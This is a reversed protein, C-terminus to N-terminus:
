TLHINIKNYNLNGMNYYIIPSRNKKTSKSKEDGYAVVRSKM